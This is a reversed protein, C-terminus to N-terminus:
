GRIRDVAALAEALTEDDDFQACQACSLAIRLEPVTTHEAAIRVREDSGLAIAARARIRPSSLPDAM